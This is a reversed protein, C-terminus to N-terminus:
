TMRRITASLLIAKLFHFSNDVKRGCSTQAAPLALYKEKVPGQIIVAHSGHNKASLSTVKAMADIFIYQGMEAERHGGKPSDSNPRCDFFQPRIKNMAM